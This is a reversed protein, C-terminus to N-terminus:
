AISRAQLDTIGNRLPTFSSAYDTSQYPGHQHYSLYVYNSNGPKVDVDYWYDECTGEIDGYRLLTWTVGWNESRYFAGRLGKCINEDTIRTVIYVVNPRNPDSTIGYVANTGFEPGVKTWSYGYDVSRYLGGGNTGAFVINRSGPILGLSQIAANGPMGTGSKFWNNGGDITKLVGGGYSGAYVMKQDVPDVLVATISGGVPGISVPPPPAKAVIPLFLKSENPASLIQTPEGASVDAAQIRHPKWLFAISVFLMWAILAFIITKHLIKM